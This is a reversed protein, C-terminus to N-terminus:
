KRQPKRLKLTWQSYKHKSSNGNVLQNLSHDSTSPRITWHGSSKPCDGKENKMNGPRSTIVGKSVVLSGNIHKNPNNPHTIEKPYSSSNSQRLLTTQSSIDELLDGIVGSLSKFSNTSLHVNCIQRIVKSFDRYM